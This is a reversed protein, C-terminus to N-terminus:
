DRNADTLLERLREISDGPLEVAFCQNVQEDKSLEHLEARLKDTNERERRIRQNLNSAAVEAQRRQEREREIQEALSATIRQHEREASRYDSRAQQYDAELQSARSEARDARRGESNLQWTLLLVVGLAAGLLALKAKGGVKAALTGIM